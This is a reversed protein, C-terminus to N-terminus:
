ICGGHLVILKALSRIYQTDIRFTATNAPPIAVMTLRLILAINEVLLGKSHINPHDHLTTAM